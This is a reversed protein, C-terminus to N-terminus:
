IPQAQIEEIADCTAEVVAREFVGIGEFCEDYEPCVARPKTSNAERLVQLVEIPAERLRKAQVQLVGIRDCMAQGVARRLDGIQEFCEDYEAFVANGHAFAFCMLAYVEAWLECEAGGEKWVALVTSPTVPIRYGSECYGSECVADFLKILEMMVLRQLATIELRRATFFIYCLLTCGDQWVIDEWYPTDPPVVVLRDQHMWRCIHAFVLPSDDPLEITDSNTHGASKALLRAAVPSHYMLMQKPLTILQAEKGLRVSVSPGQMLELLITAHDTIGREAFTYVPEKELAEPEQADVFTEEDEFPPSPPTKMSERRSLFTSLIAAMSIVKFASIPIQGIFLFESFSPGQHCLVKNHQLKSSTVLGKNAVISWTGAIGPVVSSLELSPYYGKNEFLRFTLDFQDKRISKSKASEM